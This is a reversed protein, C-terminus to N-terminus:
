VGDIEIRKLYEKEYEELEERRKQKSESESWFATNSKQINRIQEKKWEAIASKIIKECEDRSVGESRLHHLFAVVDPLMQDCNPCKCPIAM